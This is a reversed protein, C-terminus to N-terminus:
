RDRASATVGEEGEEIVLLGRLQALGVALKEGLPAPEVRRVRLRALCRARSRAGRRSCPVAFRGRFCGGTTGGAGGISRKPDIWPEPLRTAALTFSTRSKRGGRGCRDDGARRRGPATATR